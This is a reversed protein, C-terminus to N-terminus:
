GVGNVKVKVGGGGGLYESGRGRKNAGLLLVEIQSKMVFSFRCNTVFYKLCVRTKMHFLASRPKGSM